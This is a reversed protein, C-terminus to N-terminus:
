QRQMKVEITRFLLRHTFEDIVQLVRPRSLNSYTVIYDVRTQSVYDEDDFEDICEDPLSLALGSNKESVEYQKKGRHVIDLDLKKEIKKIDAKPEMGYVFAISVKYQTSSGYESNRNGRSFAAREKKIFEEFSLEKKKTM